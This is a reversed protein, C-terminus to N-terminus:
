TVNDLSFVGNMYAALSGIVPQLLYYTRDSPLLDASLIYLSPISLLLVSFPLEGVMMTAIADRIDLIDSSVYITQETFLTIGDFELFGPPTLHFHYPDLDPWLGQAWVLCDQLLSERCPRIDFWGTPRDRLTRCSACATTPLVFM